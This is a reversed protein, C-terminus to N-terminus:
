FVDVMGHLTESLSLPSLRKNDNILYFHLVSLVYMDEATMIQCTRM